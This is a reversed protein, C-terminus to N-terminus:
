LRCSTEPPAYPFTRGPAYKFIKGTKQQSTKYQNITNPCYAEGFDILKIM